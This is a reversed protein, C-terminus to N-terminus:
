QYALWEFDEKLLFAGVKFHPGSVLSVINCILNQKNQAIAFYYILDRM